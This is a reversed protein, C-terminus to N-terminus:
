HRKIKIGRGCYPCNKPIFFTTPQLWKTGPPSKKSGVENWWKVRKRLRMIEEVLDRVEMESLLLDSRQVKKIVLDAAARRHKAPRYM